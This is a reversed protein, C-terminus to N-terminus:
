LLGVTSSCYYYYQNKNAFDKVKNIINTDKTYELLFIEKNKKKMMSAIEQYYESDEKDQTTFIDKNYDQIGTFVEEQHYGWISSFISDNSDNMDDLFEAGGNLMVKLGLNSLGTIMNKIATQFSAKNLNHEIAESYVDVNDLYVGFAKKEKATKGLTNIVFDQWEVHTVDIWKEDPWNTYDMFAYQVYEDYYDRYTEISGANVYLLVNTGKSQLSEITEVDYEELELSVYKYTSLGSVNNESRGLFAGYGNSIKTESPKSCGTLVSVLLLPLVKYKM